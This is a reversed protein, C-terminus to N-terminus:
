YTNVDGSIQTQIVILEYVVIFDNFAYVGGEVARTVLYSPKGSIEPIKVAPVMSAASSTSFGVARPETSLTNVVTPRVGGFNATSLMTAGVDTRTLDKIGVTPLRRRLTPNGEKASSDVTGSPSSTLSRVSPSNTLVNAMLLPTSKWPM